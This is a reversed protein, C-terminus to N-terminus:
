LEENQYNVSINYHPTNYVININLTQKKIHVLICVLFAIDDENHWKQLIIDEDM